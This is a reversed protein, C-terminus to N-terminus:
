GSRVHKSQVLREETRGRVNLSVAIHRLATGVREVIVRLGEGLRPSPNEVPQYSDRMVEGFVVCESLRTDEMLAVFCAYLMRRKRLTAEINEHKTELLISIRYIAHDIHNQRGRSQALSDVCIRYHIM